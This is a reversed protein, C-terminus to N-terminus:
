KEATQCRTAGAAIFNQGAKSGKSEMISYGPADKDSAVHEGAGSELIVEFPEIYYLEKCVRTEVTLIDDIEEGEFLNVEEYHRSDGTCYEEQGKDECEMPM